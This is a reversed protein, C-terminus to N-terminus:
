LDGGIYDTSWKQSPADWVGIKVATVDDSTYITEPLKFVVEVPSDVINLSPDPFPINKLRDHVPLITRMVWKNAQRCQEPYAFMQFDVIGGVVIDDQVVHESLHDYNTWMCRFILPCSTQKM